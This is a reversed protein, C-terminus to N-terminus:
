RELMLEVTELDLELVVRMRVITAVRDLLTTAILVRQDGEVGPGLLGSVYAERLVVSEVRFVEAVAELELYVVGDIEIPQSM